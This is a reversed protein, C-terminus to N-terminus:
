DWIPMEKKLFATIGKQGETSVRQKAILKATFQDITADIKQNSVSRILKKSARIANPALKILQKAYNLTFNLLQDDDVQHQILNLNLARKTDFTEATVFLQTAAREGIAKIVYPSIVAPILGLKVESFCFKASAAAIAIDCTAVIGVGGGFAAGQIMAITPCPFEYISRMLRALVLADQINEAETFQAIRQMWNLDAGASFHKGNAKFILARLKPNNKEHDLISQLENLFKDDFANQKSVRNFTILLIKDQWECLIDSM